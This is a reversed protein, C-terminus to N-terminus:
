LLYLFMTPSFLPLKVQFTQLPSAGDVRAAELTEKPLTQLGALFLIMYYGSMKWVQVFTVTNLAYKADSLWYPPTLGIAEIAINVLGFGPGLLWNWVIGVAVASTIVPLYICARFFGIGHMKVDILLALLLGFLMSGLVYLVSFQITNGIIGIFESDSFLEKYNNLGNFVPKSLLNWDTFGLFVIGRYSDVPIRCTRHSDPVPVVVPHIGQVVWEGCKGEEHRVEGM